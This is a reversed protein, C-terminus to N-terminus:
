DPLKCKDANESRWAAMPVVHEKYVRRTKKRNVGRALALDLWHSVTLWSLNDKARTIFVPEDDPITELYARDQERPM